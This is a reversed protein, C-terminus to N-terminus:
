EQFNSLPSEAPGVHSSDTGPPSESISESVSLVTTFRRSYSHWSQSRQLPSKCLEAAIAASRSISIKAEM